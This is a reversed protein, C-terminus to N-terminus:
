WTTRRGCACMCVPISRTMWLTVLMYFRVYVTMSAAMGTFGYLAVALVAATRDGSIGHALRYLLIQNLLFLVINLAIASWKSLEGEFFLAQVYHFLVMYPYRTFWVKINYGAPDHLLAEERTVTLTSKLESIEHWEDYTLFDADYLKIRKPTSASLYHANDYTFFEDVYYGSKQTGWYVMFILQIAIVVIVAAQEKRIAKM